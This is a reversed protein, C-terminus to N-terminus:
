RTLNKLRDKLWALVGNSQSNGKFVDDANVPLRRDSTTVTRVNFHTAPPPASDGIVRLFPAMPPRAGGNGNQKTSGTEALAKRLKTAEDSLIKLLQETDEKATALQKSAEESLLSVPASEIQEISTQISAVEPLLVAHEDLLKEITSKEPNTPASFAVSVLNTWTSIRNDKLDKIKKQLLALIGSSTKQEPAHPTEDEVTLEDADIDLETEPAPQETAPTASSLPTYAPVPESTIRAGVIIEGTQNAAYFRGERIGVTSNEPFWYSSDLKRNNEDIQESLTELILNTAEELYEAPVELTKLYKAVIAKLGTKFQLTESFNSTEANRLKENLIAGAQDKAANEVQATLAGQVEGQTRELTEEIIVPATPAALKKAKAPAKKATEPTGKRPKPAKRTESPGKKAM